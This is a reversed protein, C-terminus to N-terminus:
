PPDVPDLFRQKKLLSPADRRVWFRRITLAVNTVISGIPECVNTSDLRGGLGVEWVVIDVQARKFAEAAMAWTAEFFSNENSEALPLVKQAVECILSQSAPTGSNENEPLHFSILLRLGALEIALM